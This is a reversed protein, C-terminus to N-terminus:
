TSYHQKSKFYFYLEDEIDYIGTRMRCKCVISSRLLDCHKMCSAKGRYENCPKGKVAKAKHHNFFRPATLMGPQAPATSSAHNEAEGDGDLM